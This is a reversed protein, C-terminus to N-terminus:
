GTQAQETAMNAVTGSLLPMGLKFGGVFIAMPLRGRWNCNLEADIFLESTEDTLRALRSGFEGHLDHPGETVKSQVLFGAPNFQVVRAVVLQSSGFVGIYMKSNVEMPQGEPEMRFSTVGPCQDAITKPNKLLGWLDSQSAEITLSENIKM